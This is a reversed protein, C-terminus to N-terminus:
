RQRRLLFLLHADRLSIVEGLTGPALKGGLSGPGVMVQSQEDTM